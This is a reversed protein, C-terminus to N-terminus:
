NKSLIINESNNINPFCTILKDSVKASSIIKQRLNKVATNDINLSFSIIPQMSKFKPPLLETGLAKGIKELFSLSPLFSGSEIRAISSQKTGIKKALEGQTLNKSIRLNMVMEAIEYAKKNKERIKKLEPNKLLKKEFQDFTQYKRM